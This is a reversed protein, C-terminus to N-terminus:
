SIEPRASQKPAKDARTKKRPIAITQGDIDMMITRERAGM